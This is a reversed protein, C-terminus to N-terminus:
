QVAYEWNKTKMFKEGQTLNLIGSIVLFTGVLAMGAGATLLPIEASSVLSSYTDSSTVDGSALVGIGFVMMVSGIATHAVGKITSATTCARVRLIEALAITDKGVMISTSDIMNLRGKFHRHDDKYVKIRKGADLTVVMSRATNTLVLQAPQGWLFASSLCALLVSICIKM